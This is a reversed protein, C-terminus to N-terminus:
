RKWQMQFRKADPSIKAPLVGLFRYIQLLTKLHANGFPSIKADAIEEDILKKNM